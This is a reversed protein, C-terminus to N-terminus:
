FSDGFAVGQADEVIWHLVNLAVVRKTYINGEYLKAKTFGIVMEHDILM